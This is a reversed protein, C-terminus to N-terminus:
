QFDIFEIITVPADKPGMSPSNGIAIETRKEAAQALGCLSLVFITLLLRKLM